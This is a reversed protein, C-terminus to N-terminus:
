PCLADTAGTGREESSVEQQIREIDEPSIVSQPIIGGGNPHMPKAETRYGNKFNLTNSVHFREMSPDSFTNGPLFPLEHASLEKKSMTPEASSGAAVLVGFTKQSGM